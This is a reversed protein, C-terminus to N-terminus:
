VGTKKSRQEPVEDDDNMWEGEEVASESCGSFDWAVHGIKKLSRVGQQESIRRNVFDVQLFTHTNVLPNECCMCSFKLGAALCVSHVAGSSVIGSSQKKSLHFDNKDM